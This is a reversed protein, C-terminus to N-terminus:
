PGLHQRVRAVAEDLLEHEWVRLVTWGARELAESDDKDREENRALKASWYGTPDAPRRGHTPCGHWFCGDVFIVLRRRTFVVDPRVRRGDADVVHDVRYRYGLAHLAKRLRIEPGTDRRRNAKM